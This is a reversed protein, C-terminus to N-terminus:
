KQQNEISNWKFIPRLQGNISDTKGYRNGNGSIDDIVSFIFACNNEYIINDKNWGFKKNLTHLRLRVSYIINNFFNAPIILSVKCNNFIKFDPFQPIAHFVMHGNETFFSLVPLIEGHPLDNMEFEILMEQDIKLVYTEKAARQNNLRINKIFNSKVLSSSQTQDNLSLYKSICEDTEGYKLVKGNELLLVKNCLSAILSLNHSVILVTRGSKTQLNINKICKKQFDADGVALVEDIILIDPELHAAVSFALRVFMGSSYRKVPTTIFKEVQAFEIISDYCDDIENKRLGFLSGSLYINEKGTMEPNFGTGIELLSSVKGRIIAKGESPETIRSLIKLLTSKGAGNHGIIGLVEGEEVRFSVDDLATFINNNKHKKFPLGISRGFKTCDQLFSSAGISGLRYHKCLNEVEIVAM